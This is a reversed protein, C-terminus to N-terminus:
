DMSVIQLIRRDNILNQLGSVTARVTCSPGLILPGSEPHWVAQRAILPDLVEAFGARVGEEQSALEGPSMDELYINFPYNLMIMLTIQGNEQAIRRMSRANIKSQPTLKGSLDRYATLGPTTEITQAYSGLGLLLFLLPVIIVRKM